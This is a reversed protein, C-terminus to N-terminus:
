MYEKLSANISQYCNATDLFEFFTSIFKRICRVRGLPYVLELHLVLRASISGPTYKDKDRGGNVPGPGM